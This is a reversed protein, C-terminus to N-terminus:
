ANFQDYKRLANKLDSFNLGIKNFLQKIPEESINAEKELRMLAEARPIQNDRVLSSLGDDKDNYGLMKKYLYLKLLAIECDGRWTSGTNPNKKWKLENEIAAIVENEKWYIYSFFPTSRFLKKNGKGKWYCYYYEKIQTIVCTPNLIWKPNQIFKGIIGFLFSRSIRNNTDIRMLDIKYGQGEFPTGGNIIAPIKKKKAFNIIGEEIGIKCGACIVGIMAAEPKNMWSVVHHRICKKLYDSKEIVLQVNLIKAMRHMNAITQAPIFGNDASYAIVRLKLVKVLYYLLYSSDRGGSVGVICDYDSNRDKIGNLFSKLKTKYVENGFYQRSKFNNCHKCIGEENFTIGAYNKPLICKTCRKIDNHIQDM